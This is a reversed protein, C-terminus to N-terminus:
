HQQGCVRPYVHTKWVESPLQPWRHRRSCLLLTRVGRRAVWAKCREVFAELTARRVIAFSEEDDFKKLSVILRRQPTDSVCQGAVFVDQPTALPYASARWLVKGDWHSKELRVVHTDQDHNRFLLVDGEELLMSLHLCSLRGM